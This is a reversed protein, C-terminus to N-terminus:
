RVVVLEPYFATAETKGVVEHLRTVECVPGGDAVIPAASRCVEGPPRCQGGGLQNVRRKSRRRPSGRSGRCGGPKRGARGAFLRLAAPVQERQERAHKPPCHGVLVM